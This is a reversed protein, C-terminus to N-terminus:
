SGGGKGSSVPGMVMKGSFIVRGQEIQFSTLRVAHTRRDLRSLDLLPNFLDEIFDAFKEPEYIDSSEIAVNKLCIWREDKLYPTASIKLKVATDPSAGVTLLDTEIYVKGACLEVQPDLLKLQVDGLGPLDLNLFALAAVVQRARLARSVAREDASGSLTFLVATDVPGGRGTWDIKVPIASKAQLNGFPVGRFRGKKINLSVKRMKGQFLDTLSYSRLSVSAGSGLLFKSIITACGSVALNGLMTLGSYKQVAVSFKGATKFGPLAEEAQCAVFLPSQGFLVLVILVSVFVRM